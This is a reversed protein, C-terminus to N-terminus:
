RAATVSEATQRLGEALPVLPRLDLLQHLRSTDAVIDGPATGDGEEFVPERGVAEGILEALERITVADDGAVNLVVSEDLELVGLLARVVDDIYLPNMRPRGGANLSVPTGERVRGILGPIMRAEQGPGYPVVLRLVATTLFDGYAQVLNEANIKTIAYFDRGALPDDEKFPRDGFGYVSASSAYVFRKAGAERAHDLLDLTSATNVGHLERAGDPFRANAQALHVVADVEPLTGPDLPRALDLEILRAGAPPEYSSSGRAACVLDHGAEVLRPALHGGVFGSAGTLLIRM